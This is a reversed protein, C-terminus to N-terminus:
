ANYTQTENDQSPRRIRIEVTDTFPKAKEAISETSGQIDDEADEEEQSSHDDKNLNLDDVVLKAIDSISDTEDLSIQRLRERIVKEMKRSEAEEAKRLRANETKTAFDKRKKKSDFFKDPFFSGASSPSGPPSRDVMCSTDIEDTITTYESNVSTLIPTLQALASSSASNNEAATFIASSTSQSRSRCPSGPAITSLYENHTTDNDNNSHDEAEAVDIYFKPASYVSSQNKDLLVTDETVMTIGSTKNAKNVDVTLDDPVNRRDHLSAENDEHKKGLDHLAESSLEPLRPLSHKSRQSISRELPKRPSSIKPSGSKTFDTYKRIYEEKVPKKSHVLIPSPISRMTSSPESTNSKDLSETSKRKTMVSGDDPKLVAPEDYAALDGQEIISEQSEVQGHSSTSSASIHRVGRSLYVKMVNLLDTSQLSLEELKTLRYDVTQLSLKISNEKQNVDDMRMTM